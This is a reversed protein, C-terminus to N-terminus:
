NGGKVKGFEVIKHLVTLKGATTHVSFALFLSNLLISSQDTLNTKPRLKPEMNGSRCINRKQPILRTSKGWQM